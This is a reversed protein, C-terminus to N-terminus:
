VYGDNRVTLKIDNETVDLGHRCDELIFEWMSSSVDEYIVVAWGERKGKEFGVM